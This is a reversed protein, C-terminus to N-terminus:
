RGKKNPLRIIPDSLQWLGLVSQLYRLPLPPTM